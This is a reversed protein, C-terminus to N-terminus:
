GALRTRLGAVVENVKALVSKLGDNTAAQESLPTTAETLTLVMEMDEKAAVQQKAQLASLEELAVSLRNVLASNQASISANRRQSAAMADKYQKSYHTGCLTKWIESPLREVMNPCSPVACPYLQPTEM